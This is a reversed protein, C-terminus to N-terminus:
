RELESMPTLAGLTARGLFAAAQFDKGCHVADKVRDAPHIKRGSGRDSHKGAMAAPSKEFSDDM